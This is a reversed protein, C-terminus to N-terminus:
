RGGARGEAWAALSDALSEALSGVHHSVTSYVARPVAAVAGDRVARTEGLGPQSRLFEVVAPLEATEAPVFLLDPDWSAIQEAAVRPWGELGAEAPVNRAGLEVLVDHFITRAAPVAGDEWGMVRPSLGGLSQRARRRAGAIRRDLREVLAAAAADEGVAFGTVRVNGRVAALSDFRDLRIAPARASALQRQAEPTTYAALFVLDPRLSLIHEASAAVTVGVREAEEVVMSFRPELAPKSVAVLREGVGLALLIEDAVLAQSVIRRPPEALVLTRAGRELARVERWGGPVGLERLSFGAAEAADGAPALVGPSARDPPRTARADRSSGSLGPLAGGAPPASAPGFRDLALFALGVLVACLVLVRKM